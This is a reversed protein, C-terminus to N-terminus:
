VDCLAVSERLSVFPERLPEFEHAVYGKFQADAIARMAGDWQVELTNDLEHREALGGTHSHGIWRLNARITAILDGEMIQIRYINYLLKVNSVGRSIGLTRM